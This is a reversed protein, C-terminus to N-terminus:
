CMKFKICCLHLLTNCSIVTIPLLDTFRNPHIFFVQLSPCLNVLRYCLQTWLNHFLKLIIKRLKFHCLRKINLLKFTQLIQLFRQACPQFDTNSGESRQARLCSETIPIMCQMLEPFRGSIVTQSCQRWRATWLHLNSSCSVWLENLLSHLLTPFQESTLMHFMPAAGEPSFLSSGNIIMLWIVVTLSVIHKEIIQGEGATIARKLLLSEGLLDNLRLLKTLEWFNSIKKTM